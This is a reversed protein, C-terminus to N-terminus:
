KWWTAARRSEQIERRETQSMLRTGKVQVIVGPERKAPRFIGIPSLPVIKGTKAERVRLSAGLTEKVKKKGTEVAGFFSMPKGVAMFTGKRRVEPIFLGLPQKAKTTVEEGVTPPIDWKWKFTPPPLPPPVGIKTVKTTVVKPTVKATTKLAIKLAPKLMPILGYKLTPKLEEKLAPKVLPKLQSKLMPKLSLPQKLSPTTRLTSKLMPRLSITTKSLPEQVKGVGLFDEGEWYGIGKRLQAETLGVGGVMRPIGILSASPKSISVAKSKVFMKSVTPPVLPKSKVTKLWQFQETPKGSVKIPLSAKLEIGKVEGLKITPGPLKGVPIEILKGSVYPYKGAARYGPITTRKSVIGTKSLKYRIPMFGKAEITGYGIPTTKMGLYYSETKKGLPKAWDYTALKAQGLQEAESAVMPQGLLEPWAKREAKPLGKISLFDIVEGKGSVPIFKRTPTFRKTLALSLADEVPTGLPVKSIKAIQAIYPSEGKVFFEGGIRTGGGQILTLEPTMVNVKPYTVPTWELTPKMGFFEKAPTTVMAETSPTFTTRVYRSAREGTPTIFSTQWDSILPEAVKQYVKSGKFFEGTKPIIVSGLLMGGTIREETTSSPALTLAGGAALVYREPALALAGLELGFTTTKGVTEPNIFVQQKPLTFKYEGGTTVMQPYIIEKQPVLTIPTEKLGLTKTTVEVGKGAQTLIYEPATWLVDKARELIKTPEVFKKAEQLYSLYGRDEVGVGGFGSAQSLVGKFKELGTQMLGPEAKSIEYSSVSPREFSLVDRGSITDHWLKIEKERPMYIQPLGPPTIIDWTKGQVDTLIPKWIPGPQQAASMREGTLPNEWETPQNPNFTTTTIPGTSIPMPVNIAPLEAVGVGEKKKFIDPILESFPALFSASTSSIVAGTSVPIASIGIPSSVYEGSPPSYDRSRFAFPNVGEKMSLTQDKELTALEDKINQIIREREGSFSRGLIKEVPTPPKMYYYKEIPEKGSLLKNLLKVREQTRVINVFDEDTYSKEPGILPPTEKNPVPPILEPKGEFFNYPQSWKSKSPLEASITQITAGTTKGLKDIFRTDPFLEGVGYLYSAGGPPVNEGKAIAMSREKRMEKSVEGLHKAYGVIAPPTTLSPFFTKKGIEVAKQFFSPSKAGQIYDEKTMLAPAGVTGGTIGGTPSYITQGELAEYSGVLPNYLGGGRKIARRELEKTRELSAQIYPAVGMSPYLFNYAKKFFSQSQPQNVSVPQSIAGGSVPQSIAGGTIGRGSGQNSVLIFKNTGSFQPGYSERTGGAFYRRDTGSPMTYTQTQTPPPTYFGGPTTTTTRTIIGANELNKLTSEPLGGLQEPTVGKWQLATFGAQQIAGMQTNYVLKARQAALATRQSKSFQKEMLIDRPKGSMKVAFAQEAMAQQYAEEAARQQAELGALESEYQSISQGREKLQREYDSLVGMATGKQQELKQGQIRRKVLEMLGRFQMQRRPVLPLQTSQIKLREGGVLEQQMVYEQKATEM